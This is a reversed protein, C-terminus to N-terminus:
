KILTKLEKLWKEHLNYWDVPIISKVFLKIVYLHPMIKYNYKIGNRKSEKVKLIYENYAGEKKLFSIFKKYYFSRQHKIYYLESFQIDTLFYFTDTITYSYVYSNIMARIKQIDEASVKKEKLVRFIYNTNYTLIYDIISM